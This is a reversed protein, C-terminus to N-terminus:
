TSNKVSDNQAKEKKLQSIELIAEIVQGQIYTTMNSKNQKFNLQKAKHILLNMKKSSNKVQQFVSKYHVLSRSIENINMIIDWKEDRM